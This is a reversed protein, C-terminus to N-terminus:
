LSTRALIKELRQGQLTFFVNGVDLVILHPHKREESTQEKGCAPCDFKPFGILSITTNNIFTEVGKFFAISAQEHSTLVGLLDAITASDDVVGSGDTMILKDVWHAYQRLATATGQETIYRNREEGRLQGGFTTDVQEVIANVWAFGSEEYEAITPVKLLMNMGEHLEVTGFKSTYDHEERYRTLEADTWKKTRQTMFERQWHNLRRDDCWSLKKIDLLEEVVHTCVSPDTICPQKYPYGNPYITTLLGWLLQPIDTILIKTKLEDIPVQKYTTEYVHQLAFNVLASNTFVSTNAFVKGNSVRGLTIKENAILRDLQLLDSETPAKFSVWLGSHWLPIRAITGMGLLGQVRMMAQPGVLRGGPEVGEAFGPKGAGLLEGGPGTMAQKWLSGDRYLADTYSSKRILHGSASDVSQLWDITSESRGLGLQKYTDAIANLESIEAGILALANDRTYKVGQMAKPLPETVPKSLECHENVGHRRVIQEDNAAPESAEAVESIAPTEPVAKTPSDTMPVGEGIPEAPSTTDPQQM